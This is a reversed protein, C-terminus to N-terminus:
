AVNFQMQFLVFFFVLIIIFHLYMKKHTECAIINTKKEYLERFSWKLLTYILVCYCFWNWKFMFLFSSNTKNNKYYKKHKFKKLTYVTPQWLSFFYFNPVFRLNIIHIGQLITWLRQVLRITRLNFQISNKKCLM